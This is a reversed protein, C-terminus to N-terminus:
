GSQIGCSKWRIGFVIWRLPSDFYINTSECCICFFYYQYSWKRWRQNSCSKKKNFVCQLKPEKFIGHRLIEQWKRSELRFCSRVSARRKDEEILDELEAKDAFIEIERINSEETSSDAKTINPGLSDGSLVDMPENLKEYFKQECMRAYLTKESLKGELEKVM